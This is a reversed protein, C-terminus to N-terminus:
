DARGALIRWSAPLLPLLDTALASPGGQQLALDSALGHWSVAIRAADFTPYGVALLGGLLGSLLDGMGATAQAPGGSGNFSFLLDKTAILTHPGKAILLTSPFRELWIRASEARDLTPTGLLRALEGAHPTLLIPGAASTLIQPHRAVVDLAGADLVIPLKTQPLLETLFTELVPTPVLGPGIVLSSAGQIFEEIKPAEGRDFSHLLLEPLFPSLSDPIPRSAFLRVYGAGSRLAASAALSAAGPYESSGAWLHVVGASHKHLQSPRSRLLACAEQPLFFDASAKPPPTEFDIPVGRLQGVHPLASDVLCGSKVSGLALTLDAPFVPGPAAGSAPHLGSPLDMAVYLDTGRKEGAIWSLLAAEAPRPPPTSGLGLLGDIVVRPTRSKLFHTPKAPWILAKKWHKPKVKPDPHIRRGPSRSLLSDVDWGLEKLELGLLLADDGNHGPGVLVLATGTKPLFPRLEQLAGDVAQRMLDKMRAGAQLSKEEWSRALLPSLIIM